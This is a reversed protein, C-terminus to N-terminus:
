RGVERCPWMDHLLELALGGFHQAKVSPYIGEIKSVIAQVVQHRPMDLPVSYCHDPPLLEGIYLLADIMGSCFAGETSRAIGRTAALSRCGPLVGRVTVDIRTPTEALGTHAIALGTLVITLTLRM